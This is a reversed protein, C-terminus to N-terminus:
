YNNGLGVGQANMSQKGAGVMLAFKALIREKRMKSSRKPALNVIMIFPYHQYMRLVGEPFNETASMNATAVLNAIRGAQIMMGGVLLAIKALIKEKRMKSSGKPALNVIMICPYHQYM